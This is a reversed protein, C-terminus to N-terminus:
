ATVGALKWNDRGANKAEYVAGDIRELTDKLTKDSPDFFAMGVSTTVKAKGELEPIDIARVSAVIRDGERLCARVADVFERLVKDGLAHGYNDNFQKFYDVDLMAVLTADYTMQATIMTIANSFIFVLLLSVFLGAAMYAGAKKGISRNNDKDKEKDKSIDTSM